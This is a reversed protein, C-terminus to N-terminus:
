RGGRIREVEARAEAARRGVEAFEGAAVLDRPAIWSGGCAMVNSRALYDELDGLGIGGTPVFEVDPFVSGLARVLDVGTAGGAPFLKLVSCGLRRAAMVESATFTGPVIPVGVAGAAEVVDVALGPSVLFGSGADVARRAMDADLITGAGVLLEPLAATLAGIAEFAADTRATIEAVPLGAELLAEGLAVAAAADDITVVPVVGSERLAALATM